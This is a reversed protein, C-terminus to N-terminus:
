VLGPHHKKLADYFAAKVVEGGSRLSNDYLERMKDRSTATANILSYAEPHVMDGLEETIAMVASVTQILTARNDDVFKAKDKDTSIRVCDEKPRKSEPPPVDSVDGSCAQVPKTSISTYKLQMSKLEPFTEIIDADTQLLNLFAKCSEEGKNILKDVLGVVHGEVDEKNISKLKNYERQTILKNEHVKNLILMYDGCLTGVIATKNCTVMDKASM